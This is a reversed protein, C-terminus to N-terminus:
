RGDNTDGNETPTVPAYAVCRCATRECVVRLKGHERDYDGNATYFDEHHSWYSHGCVCFARKAM